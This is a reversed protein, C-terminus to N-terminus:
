EHTKVFCNPCLALSKRRKKMMMLEFENKGTLGKLRKVHHMHLEDSTKGCIECIKAKLRSALSNPNDYRKYNPLIDVSEFYPEDVKAFGDHYFECFQIGAKNLYEVGFVGNRTRTEKIKTISSNFKAAFTKLMSGKMIYYFDGLVSVNDALRYFNYIGRIESNYKSIIEIETRNTLFGRHISKWKEKGIEDKVIKYAKYEQLKNVWKEHPLYLRVVGSWHRQLVGKENRKVDNSRSMTFDYGLYRILDSSHTVKTKEDSLTLKLIDQLFIKIDQKVKEADIKSGIVSVVFDDAYRNYQLRKYNQDFIPFTPIKFRAKQTEKFNKIAAKRDDGAEALQKKYKTYLTELKKYEKSANRRKNPTDFDTKYNEIFTDLESM